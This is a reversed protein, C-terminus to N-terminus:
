RKIRQKLIHDICKEATKVAIPRTRCDDSMNLEVTKQCGEEIVYIHYGYRIESTRFIFVEEIDFNLQKYEFGSDEGAMAKALNLLGM